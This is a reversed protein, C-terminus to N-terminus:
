AYRVDGHTLIKDKTNVSPCLLASSINIPYNSIVKKHINMDTKVKELDCCGCNLECTPCEDSCLDDWIVVWKCNCNKCEFLHRYVINSM